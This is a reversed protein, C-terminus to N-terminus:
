GKLPNDTLYAVREDLDVQRDIPHLMWIYGFPDSFMASSGGMEPMETVPQIETCGAAMANKYAARIDPVAVNLWLPTPDGPKPAVMQFEENEDLIHFRAGYIAFVAENQGKALATVEIRQVPFIGEYVRLAEISDPVIFDIEVGTIM